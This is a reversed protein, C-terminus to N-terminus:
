LTNHLIDAIQDVLFIIVFNHYSRNCVQQFVNHFNDGRLFDVVVHKQLIKVLNWDVKYTDVNAIGFNLVKEWEKFKPKWDNFIDM